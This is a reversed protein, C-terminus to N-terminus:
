RPHSQLLEKFFVFSKPFFSGAEKQGSALVQAMINVGIRDLPM